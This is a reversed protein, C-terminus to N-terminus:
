IEFHGDVWEVLLELGGGVWGGGFSMFGLVICGDM